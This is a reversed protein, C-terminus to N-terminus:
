IQDFPLEVGKFVQFLPKIFNSAGLFCLILFISLLEQLVYKWQVLKFLGIRIWKQILGAADASDKYARVV